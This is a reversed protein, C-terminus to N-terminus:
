NSTTTTSSVGGGNGSWDDPNTVEEPRLVNSPGNGEVTGGTTGSDNRAATGNSQKTGSGTRREHEKELADILKVRNFGGTGQKIFRKEQPLTHLKNTPIAPNPTDMGSVFLSLEEVKDVGLLENMQEVDVYVTEAKTNNKLAAIYEELSMKSM